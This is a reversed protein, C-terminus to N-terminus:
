KLKANKAHGTTNRALFHIVYRIKDSYKVLKDDHPNKTSPAILTIIYLVSPILVAAINFYISINPYDRAIVMLFGQLIEM